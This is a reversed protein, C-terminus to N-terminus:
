PQPAACNNPFIESLVAPRIKSFTSDESIPFSKDSWILGITIPNSNWVILFSGAPATELAQRTRVIVDPLSYCQCKIYPAEAMESFGISEIWTCTGWDYTLFKGDGDPYYNATIGPPLHDYIFDM